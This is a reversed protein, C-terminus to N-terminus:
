PAQSPCTERQRKTPQPLAANTANQLRASSGGIRSVVEVVAGRGEGVLGAGFDLGDLVLEAWVLMTSVASM